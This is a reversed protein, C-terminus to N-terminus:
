EFGKLDFIDRLDTAAGLPTRRTLAAVEGTKDVRAILSRLGCASRAKLAAM